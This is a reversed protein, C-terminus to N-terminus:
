SPAKEPLLKKKEHCFNRTTDHVLLSNTSKKDSTNGSCTM